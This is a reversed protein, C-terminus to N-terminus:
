DAQMKLGFISKNKFFIWWISLPSSWFCVSPVSFDLLATMKLVKKMVVQFFDNIYNKM